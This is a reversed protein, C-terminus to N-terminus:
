ALTEFPITKKDQDNQKPLFKQLPKEVSTGLIYEIAEKVNKSANPADAIGSIIAAVIVLAGLIKPWSPISSLAEKKAEQLYNNIREREPPSISSLLAIEAISSDILDVVRDTNLNSPKFVEDDSSKIDTLHDAFITVIGSLRGLNIITKQLSVLEEDFLSKRPILNSLIPISLMMENISSIGSSLPSRAQSMRLRLSILSVQEVLRGESDLNELEQGLMRDMRLSFRKLSYFDENFTKLANTAEKAGRLWIARKFGYAALQEENAAIEIFFQEIAILRDKFSHIQHMNMSENAELYNIGIRFHLLYPKNCLHLQEPGL